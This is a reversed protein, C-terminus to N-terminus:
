GEDGDGDRAELESFECNLFDYFESKPGCIVRVRKGGLSRLDYDFGQMKSALSKMSTGSASRDYKRMESRINSTVAVENEQGHNRKCLHLFPISKNYLCYDIKESFSVHRINRVIGNDTEVITSPDPNTYVDRRYAENIQQQLFGRLEFQTEESSEKVLTQEALLDIWDPPKLDVSKYFEKLIITAPEYWLHSSYGLILDPHEIVYRAVFDGLTRLKELRGAENENIWNKFDLKEDESWKENEYFQIAVFRRRYAPDQPPPDNSTFALPSLALINEHFRLRVHKHQVAYKVLDLLINDRRSDDNLLGGIEDVLTPYTTQSVVVGFKAPSDISGPGRFHIENQEKDNKGWVALVANIILTTKGTDTTDYHYLWPLWDDVGSRQTKTIFSFPGLIGWKLTTPFATEKKSRTQLGELVEICNLVDQRDEQNNWPDLDLRQNIGFARIQNDIWYYGPETTEDSIEAIGLEVFKEAIATLADIAEPKKLIKGKKDLAQIIESITSPGITFRKKDMMSAFTITYTRNGTLPNNNILIKVPISYILKQKLLLVQKQTVIKQHEGTASKSERTEDRDFHIIAKRVCRQRRDALYLVPPNSSVVSWVTSELKTLINDNIGELENIYEDEYESGGGGGDGGDDVADEEMVNKQAQQHERRSITFLGVGKLTYEIELITNSASDSDLPSALALTEYLRKYGSVQDSDRDKAYTDDVTRFIKDPNEDDYGTIDILRRAIETTVVIPTKSKHLYGSISFIIDNRHPKVFYPRLKKVVKTIADQESSFRELTGLFEDIEDKSLSKVHEVDNIPEYGPGREFLCGKTGKLMIESHGDNQRYPTKTKIGNPFDQDAYRFMRHYGRPTKTHMTALVKNQLDSSFRPVVKGVFIKECEDSDTDIGFETENLAIGIGNAKPGGNGKSFWIDIEKTSALQKRRKTWQIIPVRDNLPIVVFGKATFIKAETVLDVFNPGTGPASKNSETNDTYM